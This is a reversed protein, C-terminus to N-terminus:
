RGISFKFMQLRKWTTPRRKINRGTEVMKKRNEISNALAVFTHM